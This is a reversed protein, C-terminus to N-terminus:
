AVAVVAFGLYNATAASFFNPSTGWRGAKLRDPLGGYM